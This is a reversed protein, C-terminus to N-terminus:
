REWAVALTSEVSSWAKKMSLLLTDGKHARKSPIRRHTLLALTASSPYSVLRARKGYANARSRAHALEAQNPSWVSSPPFFSAPTYHMVTQGGGVCVCISACLCVRRCVPTAHGGAGWCLSLHRSGSLTDAAPGSLSLRWSEVSSTRGGASRRSTEVGGVM